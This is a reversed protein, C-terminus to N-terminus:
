PRYLLGVNTRSDMSVNTTITHGGNYVCVAPGHSNHEVVHDHTFRLAATNLGAWDNKRVVQAFNFTANPRTLPDPIPKDLNGMTLLFTNTCRHM